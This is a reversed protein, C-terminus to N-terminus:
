NSVGGGGRLRLILHVTSGSQINYDALTRDADLHTGAYILRQQYSPIGERDRIQAKVSEVTDSPEVALTIIKGTLTNVLLEMGGRLRMVLDVSSDGQIHYESLQHEDELDRGAFVLRQQESPIGEVEEIMSKVNEVFDTPNVALTVTRGTLTKVLIQMSGRSRPLLHISSGSRMGYSSVTRGEMLEAGNFRLRQQYPPYAELEQVKEKVTLIKDSPNVELQHRVGTLTMVTLQIPGDVPASLVENCQKSALLSNNSINSYNIRPKTCRCEANFGCGASSFELGDNHNM